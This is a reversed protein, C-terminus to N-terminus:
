PDLFGDCEKGVLTYLLDPAPRRKPEKPKRCTEVLVMFKVKPVHAILSSALSPQLLLMSLWLAVACASFPPQGWPEGITGSYVGVLGLVLFQSLEMGLVIKEEPHLVM